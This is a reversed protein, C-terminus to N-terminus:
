IYESKLKVHLLNIQHLEPDFKLGICCLEISM